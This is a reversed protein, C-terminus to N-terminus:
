RTVPHLTSGTCFLQPALIEIAEHGVGRCGVGCSLVSCEVEDGLVQKLILEVYKALRPLRWSAAAPCQSRNAAKAVPTAETPTAAPPMTPATPPGQQEGDRRKPRDTRGDHREGCRLLCDTLFPLPRLAEPVVYVRELQTARCISSTRPAMPLPARVRQDREGRRYILLQRELEAAEEFAPFTDTCRDGLQALLDLFAALSLLATSGLRRFWRIFPM